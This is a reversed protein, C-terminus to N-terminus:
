GQHKFLYLLTALILFDKIPFIFRDNVGVFYSYDSGRMFTVLFATFSHYFTLLVMFLGWGFVFKNLRTLKARQLKLKEQKLKFYFFFLRIFLIIMLSDITFKTIRLAGDIEDYPISSDIEIVSDLITATIVYISLYSIVIVKIIM